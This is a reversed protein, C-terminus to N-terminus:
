SNCKLYITEYIESMKSIQRFKPWIHFFCIEAPAVNPFSSQCVGTLYAKSNNNTNLLTNKFTM